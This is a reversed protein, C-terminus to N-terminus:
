CPRSEASDAKGEQNGPIQSLFRMSWLCAFFGIYLGVQRKLEWDISEVTLM